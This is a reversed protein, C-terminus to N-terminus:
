AAWGQLGLNPSWVECGRPDVLLTRGPEQRQPCSPGKRQLPVALDYLQKWMEDPRGAWPCPIPRSTESVSEFGAQRLERALSGPAAFRFPHPAGELLAPPPRRNAFSGILTRALANQPLGAWAAVDKSHWATGFELAGGGFARAFARAFAPYHLLYSDAEPYLWRAPPDDIFACTLTALLRAAADQIQWGFRM